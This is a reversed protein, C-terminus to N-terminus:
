NSKPDDVSVSNFATSVAMKLATVTEVDADEAQQVYLLNRMHNVNVVITPKPDTFHNSAPLKNNLISHMARTATSEAHLKEVAPLFVCIISLGPEDVGIWVTHSATSGGLAQVSADLKDIAGLLPFNEKNIEM